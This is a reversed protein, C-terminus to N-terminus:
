TIFIPKFRESYQSSLFSFENAILFLWVVLTDFWNQLILSLLSFFWDWRFCFLVFCIPFFYFCVFSLFFFSNVCKSMAIFIWSCPWGCGVYIELSNWWGHCAPLCVLMPFPHSVFSRDFVIEVYTLEHEVLSYAHIFICYELMVWHQLLLFFNLSDSAACAPVCVYRESTREDSGM